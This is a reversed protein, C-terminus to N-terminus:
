IICLLDAPSTLVLAADTGSTVSCCLFAKCWTHAANTFALLFAPNPSTFNFAHSQLDRLPPENWRLVTGQNHAAAHWGSDSIRSPYAAPFPMEPNQLVFISAAIASCTNARPCSSFLRPNVAPNRSPVCCWATTLPRAGLCLPTSTPLTAATRPLDPATSISTSTHVRSRYIETEKHVAKRERLCTTIMVNQREKLHGRVIRKGGGGKDMVLSLPLQHLITCHVGRSM